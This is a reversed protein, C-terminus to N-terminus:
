WSVLGEILHITIQKKEIDVNKVFEKVYPILARKEGNFVELLIGKPLEIIDNVNGILKNNEDYVISGILDEYYIDVADKKRDHTKTYIKCGTYDLVQNINNNGNFSILDFENHKRHSDIKIEKYEGNIFVFLKNGVQYRNFSTDSKVKVEGKIGHTSLIEGVYYM